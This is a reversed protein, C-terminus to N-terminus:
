RFGTAVLLLVATGAAVRYIVFPTFTSTKVVRLVLWIAAAGTVASAVVGAVFAGGTGPPLGGASVVKAGQYLCAGATIPVSMLFSITAVSVRDFGLFLGASMTIGSRSLGPALACAQAGGMILADRRGFEAVQRRGGARDAVYLIVGGVILLSAILWIQGLHDAITAELVAGVTAGPLASLALLWALREDPERVSRRRLSTWAASALRVLENRFYLVVAVLTGLHLAVDFTRNLDANAVGTLENWGFLWPVLILHGSSSIPLFESLGQVVGLVVAHWLPIQNVAGLM